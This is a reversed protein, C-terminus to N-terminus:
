SGARRQGSRLSSPLPRDLGAGRARRAGRRGARRGRGAHHERRPGDPGEDLAHLAAGSAARVGAAGRAARTRLGRRDRPLGEVRVRHPLRPRRVGAPADRPAPVGDVPRRRSDRAHPQRRDGANARVLVRLPRHPRPGQGPDRHAARRRVDLDPRQRRAAAPRRRARLARSGQRERSPHTEPM